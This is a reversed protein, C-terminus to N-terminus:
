GREWLMIPLFYQPEYNSLKDLVGREKIWKPSARYIEQTGDKRNYIIVVERIEHEILYEILKANIGFGIYKRM